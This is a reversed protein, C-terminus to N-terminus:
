ILDLYSFNTILSGQQNFSSSNLDLPGRWYHVQGGTIVAIGSVVFKEEQFAGYQINGGVSGVSPDDIVTQLASLM